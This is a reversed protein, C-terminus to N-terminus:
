QVSGNVDQPLSKWRSWDKSGAWVWWWGADPTDYTNWDYKNNKSNTMYPAAQESTCNSYDFLAAYAGTKSLQIVNHHISNDALDFTMQGTYNWRGVVGCSVFLTIGRFNEELRNGTVETQKSTSLYIGNTGNRRITNNRISGQQGVEFVIGNRANDEVLNDEVISGTANGDHWIGDFLNHHVWNNRFHVLTSEIAKQEPGNYAIENREFLVNTSVSVHYGGGRLGPNADSPNGVNHHLKNGRVV